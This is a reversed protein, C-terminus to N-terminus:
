RSPEPPACHRGPTTAPGPPPWCVPSPPRMPSRAACRWRSRRTWTSWAVTVMEAEEGVRAYRDAAPVPSLGRALFLRIIENSSGPTTHVDLLMTGTRAAVLDAEEALERAAADVLDEGAVDILGAPLEWLRAGVPHRYQQVLVVRDADDLAVVGVAGIHAIYDRNVYRGGPMLVEDTYVTFVPGRFESTGPGCGTRRHQVRRTVVGPRRPVARGAAAARRRVRAGRRRVGAFLPHPRTPRSKLEPHAQTAVFYPHLERDLEIFEVLRGDPSTGSIRLGAKTLADRYANNM